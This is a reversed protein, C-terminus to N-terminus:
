LLILLLDVIKERQKEVNLLSLDIARNFTYCEGIYTM